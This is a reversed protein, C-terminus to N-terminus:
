NLGRKYRERFEHYIDPAVIGYRSEPEAIVTARDERAAAITVRVSNQVYIGALLVAVATAAAGAQPLRVIERIGAIAPGDAKATACGPADLALAALVAFAIDAVIMTRVRPYPFSILANAVIAALMGLVIPRPMARRRRWILLWLASRLALTVLVFVLGRSSQAAFDFWGDAPEHLLAYLLQAAVNYIQLIWLHGAFMQELESASYTALLFGGSSVFDASGIPLVFARWCAYTLATTILVMAAGVRRQALAFVVLGITAAIGNEKSFVAVLGCAALALLDGSRTATSGAMGAVTITGVVFAIAIYASGMDSWLTFALWLSNGAICIALPLALSLSSLGLSKGLRLLAVLFIAALGALFLGYWVHDFGALLFLARTTGDVLPRFSLSSAFQHPTEFIEVFSRARSSSLLAFDDYSSFNSLLNTAALAALYLMALLVPAASVLRRDHM